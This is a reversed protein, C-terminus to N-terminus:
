LGVGGKGGLQRKIHCEGDVVGGALFTGKGRAPAAQCAGAVRARKKFQGPPHQRDGEANIVGGLFV